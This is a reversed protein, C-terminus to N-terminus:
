YNKTASVPHKTETGAKVTAYVRYTGKSVSYTESVLTYVGKGTARWTKIDKWGDDTKKQLTAVVSTNYNGTPKVSAKITAVGNSSIDLSASYSNMNEAMPQIEEPVNAMVAPPTATMVALGMCVAVVMGKGLSTNKM